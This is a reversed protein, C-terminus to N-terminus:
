KTQHLHVCAFDEDWAKIFDLSVAPFRLCIYLLATGIEGVKGLHTSTVRIYISTARKGIFVGAGERKLFFYASTPLGIFNIASGNKYGIKGNSRKFESKEQKGRGNESCKQTDRLLLSVFRPM